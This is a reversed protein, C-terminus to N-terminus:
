ANELVSEVAGLLAADDVPKRLHIAAGLALARDETAALDCASMTVIRGKRGQARWAALVDFGSMRPMHIDLVACGFGTQADARLFEEGSSFVETRFGMSRLLRSVSHGVATEDDVVAILSDRRSHAISSDTTSVGGAAEAVLLARRRRRLMDLEYIFEM